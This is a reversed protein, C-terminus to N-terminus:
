LSPTKWKETLEAEKGESGEGMREGEGLLNNANTIDYHGDQNEKKHQLGNNLRLTTKKQRIRCYLVAGNRGVGNRDDEQFKSKM